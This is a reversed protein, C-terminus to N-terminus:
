CGKYQIKKLVTSGLFNKYPNKQNKNIPHAHKKLQNPVYLSAAPNNCVSLPLFYM